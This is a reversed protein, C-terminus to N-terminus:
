ANYYIYTMPVSEGVNILWVTEFSFYIQMWVSCHSPIEGGHEIQFPLEILGSNFNPYPHTIVYCLDHYSQKDKGYDLNIETIWIPESPCKHGIEWQGDLRVTRKVTSHILNIHYRGRPSTCINTSQKWNYKQRLFDWAIEM